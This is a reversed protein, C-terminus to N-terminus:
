HGGGPCQYEDRRRHVAVGASSSLGRRGLGVGRAHRGLLGRPDPDLAVGSRVALTPGDDACHVGRREGSRLESAALRNVEGEDAGQVWRGGVAVWGRLDASGVPPQPPGAHEQLAEVLELRPPGMCLARSRMRLRRLTRRVDTSGPSAGVFHPIVLSLQPGSTLIKCLHALLASKGGGPAGTLCVYGNGGTTGSWALLEDRVTERSGLVFRQSREEIFAEIAANEEAFEDVETPPGVGHDLGFEASGADACHAGVEDGM